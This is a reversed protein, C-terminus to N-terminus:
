KLPGAAASAAWGRRRRLFFGGPPAPLPPHTALFFPLGRDAGAAAKPPLDPWALGPGGRQGDTSAEPPSSRAVGLGKDEDRPALVRGAAGGGGGAGALFGGGNGVGAAPRSAATPHDRGQCHGSPLAGRGAGLIRITSSSTLQFLM